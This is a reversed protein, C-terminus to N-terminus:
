DDSCGLLVVPDEVVFLIDGDFRSGNVVAQFFGGHALSCVSLTRAGMTLSLSLGSSSDALVVSTREDSVASVM